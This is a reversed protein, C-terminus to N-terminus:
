YDRRNVLFILVIMVFSNEMMIDILWGLFIYIYDVIRNSYM